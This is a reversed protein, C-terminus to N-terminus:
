FPLKKDVFACMAKSKAMHPAFAKAGKRDLTLGSMSFRASSRVSVSFGFREDKVFRVRFGGAEATVEGDKGATKLTAYHTDVKALVAAVAEAAEPTMDLIDMDGWLRIVTTDQTKRVILKTEGAEAVTWEFDYEDVVFTEAATRRHLKLYKTHVWGAVPQGNKQIAVKAWEDGQTATVELETGAELKALVKKGVKLSAGNSVVRVIDGQRLAEARAATQAMLLGSAFGLVILAIHLCSVGGWQSQQPYTKM